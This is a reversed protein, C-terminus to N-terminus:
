GIHRCAYRLLWQGYTPVKLLLRKRQRRHRSSRYSVPALVAEPQPRSLLNNRPSADCRKTRDVGHKRRSTFGRTRVNEVEPCRWLTNYMRLSTEFSIDRKRNGDDPRRRRHRIHLIRRCTPFNPPEKIAEFLGKQHVIKLFISGFNWRTWMKIFDLHGISNICFQVNEVPWYLFFPVQRSKM